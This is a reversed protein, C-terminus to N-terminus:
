IDTENIAEKSSPTRLVPPVAGRSSTQSTASSSNIRTTQSLRARRQPVRTLRSGIRLFGSSDAPQVPPSSASVAASGPLKTSTKVKAGAKKRRTVANSAKVNPKRSAIGGSGSSGGGGRHGGCGSNSLYYQPLRKKQAWDKVGKAWVHDVLYDKNWIGVRKIKAYEYVSEKERSSSPRLDRTVALVLRLELTQFEMTVRLTDVDDPTFRAVLDDIIQVGEKYPMESIGVEAQVM